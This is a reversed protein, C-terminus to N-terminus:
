EFNLLRGHAVALQNGSIAFRGGASDPLSNTHTDGPDPDTTSLNGVVTGNNANELVNTGKPNLVRALRGTDSQGFKPGFDVKAPRHRHKPLGM